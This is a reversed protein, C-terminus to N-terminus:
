RGRCRTRRAWRVQVETQWARHRGCADLWDLPGAVHAIRRHGLDILHRVALAAGFEQDVSVTLFTDDKAAKVVLAPM